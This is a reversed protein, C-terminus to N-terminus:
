WSLQPQTGAGEPTGGLENEALVPTTQQLLARAAVVQQVSTETRGEPGTVQEERGSM